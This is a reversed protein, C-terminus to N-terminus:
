DILRNLINILFIFLFVSDEFILEMLIYVNLKEILKLKLKIRMKKKKFRFYILVM